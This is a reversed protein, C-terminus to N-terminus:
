QIYQVPDMTFTGTTTDLVAGLTFAKGLAEQWRLMFWLAAQRRMDDTTDLQMLEISGSFFLEDDGGTLLTAETREKSITLIKLYHFTGFSIALGGAEESLSRTFRIGLVQTDDVAKPRWPEAVFEPLDSASTNDLAGLILLTLVPDDLLAHYFDRNVDELRETTM